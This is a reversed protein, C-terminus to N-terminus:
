MGEVGGDCLSGERDGARVGGVLPEGLRVRCGEVVLLGVGFGVEAEKGVEKGDDWQGNVGRLPGIPLVGMGDAIGVIGGGVSVGVREGVSSGVDGTLLSWLSGEREGVRVRVLLAEDLRVMTVSDDVSIFSFLWRM